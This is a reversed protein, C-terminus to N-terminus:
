EGGGGDGGGDSGCDSGADSSVDSSSESGVESSETNGVDTGEETSVEIENQINDPLDQTDITVENEPTQNALESPTGVTWSISSFNTIPESSKCYYSDGDSMTMLYWYSFGDDDDSTSHSGSYIRYELVKMRKHHMNCSSLMFMGILLILLKRIM